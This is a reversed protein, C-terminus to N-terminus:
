NGCHKQIEARFNDISAQRQEDSIFNRNGEKDLQYMRGADEAQRLRDKAYVCKKDLENKQELEKKKEEKKKLRDEQMVDALRRRREDRDEDDPLVKKSGPEAINLQTASQNDNPKDGYHTNGQEDVWKFVEGYALTACSFLLFFMLFKNTM